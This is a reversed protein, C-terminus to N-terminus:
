KMNQKNIAIQYISQNVEDRVRDCSDKKMQLLEFYAKKSLNKDKSDRVIHELGHPV